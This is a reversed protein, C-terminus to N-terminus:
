INLYLQNCSNIRDVAKQYYDASIECGYYDYKSNLCAVGSSCSGFHSDFIKFNPKAYRNLLWKYLDVPKQTPHFRNIPRNINGYYPLEVITSNEDLDTWMLECRAFGKIPQKKDWVIYCRTPPLNFYNGGFIISNKSVRFLEKFYEDDPAKNWETGGSVNRGKIPEGGWGYPPDVISL